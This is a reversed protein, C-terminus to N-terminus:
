VLDECNEQERQYPIDRVEDYKQGEPLPHNKSYLVREMYEDRALLYHAPNINKSLQKICYDLYINKDQYVLNNPIATMEKYSFIENYLDVPIISYTANDLYEYNLRFMCHINPLIGERGGYNLTKMGCVTDGLIRRKFMHYGTWTANRYCQAYEVFDDLFPYVKLLPKIKGHVGGVTLEISNDKNKVFSEVSPLSQLEKLAKRRQSLKSKPKYFIRLCKRIRVYDRPVDTRTPPITKEQEDKLLKDVEEFTMFQSM